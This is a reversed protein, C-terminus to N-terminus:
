KKFFNQLEIFKLTNIEFIVVSEGLIRAKFYVFLVNKRLFVCDAM